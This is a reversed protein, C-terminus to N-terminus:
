SIVVAQQHPSCCEFGLAGNGVVDQHMRHVYVIESCGLLGFPQQAHAMSAPTGPLGQLHSQM